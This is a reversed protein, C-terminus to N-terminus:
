NSHLFHNLYSGKEQECKSLQVLHQMMFFFFILFKAHKLPPPQPCMKFLPPAVFTLLFNWSNPFSYKQCKIMLFNYKIFMFCSVAVIFYELM